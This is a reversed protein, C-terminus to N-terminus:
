SSKLQVILEIEVSANKPLSAVGVAARAHRGIEGFVEVLLDSAGNIVLPQEYFTTASSVFGNLKLVREVNELSGAASKIASLANLCALRAAAQGKEIDAETALAGTYVLQGNDMPLMGSTYVLQGTQVWPVYNAVPTPVVPLTDEFSQLTTTM